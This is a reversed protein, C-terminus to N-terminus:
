YAAAEATASIAFRIALDSGEFCQELLRTVQYENSLRMRLLRILELRAPTFEEGRLQQILVSRVLQGAYPEQQKALEPDVSTSQTFPAFAHM